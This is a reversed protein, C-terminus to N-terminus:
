ATSWAVRGSAWTVGNVPAFISKLSALIEADADAAAVAVNSEVLETTSMGVLTTEINPANLAFRLAHPALRQGRSACFDEALRCAEHLERPAPHSIPAAGALLGMGLPSGNIVRVSRNRALPVLQMLDTNFLCCHCYSLVVDIRRNEIVRRLVHLPYASVGVARCLGEHKLQDLADLTEGLIQDPPGFEVDHALLIDIHDTRLRRLSGELSQRIGDRSFDFNDDGIRGAKTCLEVRDRRGVLAKGLVEEARAPGYYPSVDFMTIGLDIARHVAYLAEREEGRNRVLKLPGAGFGLRSTESDEPETVTRVATAADRGLDSQM